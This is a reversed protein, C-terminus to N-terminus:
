VLTTSTQSKDGAETGEGEAEATEAARKPSQVTQITAYEVPEETAKPLSDAAKEPAKQFSELDAYHLEKPPTKEETNNTNANGQLEVGIDIDGVEEVKVSRKGGEVNYSEGGERHRLVLYVILLVILCILVVAVIGGVVGGAIAASNDQQRQPPPESSMATSPTATGAVRIPDSNTFDSSGFQNQAQASFLYFEGAMLGDITFERQENDVYGNAELIRSSRSRDLTLTINVVFSFM